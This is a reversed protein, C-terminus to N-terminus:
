KRRKRAIEFNDGYSNITLTTSYRCFDSDFYKLQIDWDKCFNSNGEDFTKDDIQPIVQWYGSNTFKIQFTFQLEDECYVYFKKAVRTNNVDIEARIDGEFEILDDSAGYIHVLM